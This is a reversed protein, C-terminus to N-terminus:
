RNLTVNGLVNQWNIHEPLNQRNRWIEKLVEPDYLQEELEQQRLAMNKCLDPVVKDVFETLIEARWGEEFSKCLDVPEGGAITSSLNGALMDVFLRLEYCVWRAYARLLDRVLERHPDKGPSVLLDVLGEIYDNVEKWFAADRSLRIDREKAKKKAPKILQDFM